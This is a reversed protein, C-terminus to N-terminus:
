TRAQVDGREDASDKGVSKRYTEYEDRSLTGLSKQTDASAQLIDIFGQTTKNRNVPNKEFGPLNKTKSEIDYGKCLILLAYGFASGTVLYVLSKVIRAM